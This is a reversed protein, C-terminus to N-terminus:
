LKSNKILQDTEDLLELAKDKKGMEIYLQSLNQRSKLVEPHTKELIAEKISLSKLYFSLSEEFKGQDKYCLGYQNYINALPLNSEGYNQEVIVEAKQLLEECIKFQKLARYCGSASIYINAETNPMITTTKLMSFLDEFIKIAEDNRKMDRLLTAINQKVIVIKEIETDKNALYNSLVKEFLPLADELKGIMKLIFAKNNLASQFFSHQEGYSGKIAELYLDSIELGEEYQGNGISQIIDYNMAKLKLKLDDENEHSNSSCGCSGKSCGSFHKIVVNLANRGSSLYNRSQKMSNSLFLPAFLKMFLFLYYEISILTIVSM